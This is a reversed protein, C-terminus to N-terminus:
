DPPLGPGLSDLRVRVVQQRGKSYVFGFAETCTLAIPSEWQWPAGIDGPLFWTRGDALRALVMVYENGGDVPLYSERLAYGCGVVVPATGFPSGSPLSRVRRPQLKGPDTTYPATMVDNTPFAGNPNTRNSGQVWVMDVGDTNLDFAGRTTDGGFTIFDRAGGDPTWVKQKNIALSDSAWFLAEDQFFPYNQKLGQEFAPSSVFAPTADIGGDWPFVHLENYPNVRLVGPRGVAFVMDYAFTQTDRYVFSPRLEDFRGALAGGPGVGERIRYVYYGDQVDTMIVTCAAQWTSLVAMHVPGDADAYLLYLGEPTYRATMLTVTSDHAWAASFEVGVGPSGKGEVWDIKVQQCVTNKPEAEPPCPEWHMPPPLDQATKPLYIGCTCRYDDFRYWGNPINAPAPLPVCPSPQTDPAGSDIGQDRAVVDTAADAAPSESSCAGWAPLVLAGCAVAATSVLLRRM